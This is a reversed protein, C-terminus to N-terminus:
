GSLDLQSGSQGSPDKSRPISEDTAAAADPHKASKSTEEWLRRGDADRDEAESDEDTAAIGAANEAKEASTIQRENAAADQQTREVDSGKVQALPSGAVSALSALPGISM